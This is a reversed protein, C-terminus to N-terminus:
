EYEYWHGQGKFCQTDQWHWFHNLCLTAINQSFHLHLYPSNVRSYIVTCPQRNFLEARAGAWFFGQNLNTKNVTSGAVRRGVVWGGAVRGHCNIKLCYVSRVSRIADECSSSRVPLCGWLFVVEYSSLRVPLRGWLLFVVCSSSRVPLRVWRFIVELSSVKFSSLRVPLCGWLFVVECSSLSVPLRGWLFVVECSSSRVPLLDCLFVVECSFLTVPLRGWM